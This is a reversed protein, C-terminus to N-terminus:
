FRLMLGIKVMPFIKSNTIIDLEDEYEAKTDDLLKRIAENNSADVSGVYTYGEGDTVVGAVANNILNQAAGQFDSPLQSIINQLDSAAGALNSVYSNNDSKAWLAGTGTLDTTIRPNNTFVVGADFYLKLGFFVQFDFGIGAYPGRVDSEIGARLTASGTVKYDVDNMEFKANLGEKIMYADLAFDGTYYGGSIRFNGLFWTNGFPYFDILAGYNTGSIKGNFKTNGDDSLEIPNDELYDQITKELPKWSNYDIRFGFRNKWFNYNRRPIRYGLHANTGSLVGVGVGLQFGELLYGDDEKEEYGQKINEPIEIKDQVKKADNLTPKLANATKLSNSVVNDDDEFDDVINKKMQNFTSNLLSNNKADQAFAGASFMTVMLLSSIVKKM